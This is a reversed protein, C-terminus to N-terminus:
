KPNIVTIVRSGTAEDVVVQPRGPLNRNQITLTNGKPHPTRKRVNTAGDLVQDIDAPSMARRGRPPNVMRDAAHVFIDRGGPTKTTGLLQKTAFEGDFPVPLNDGGGSGGTKSGSVSSKVAGGLKKAIAGGPVVSTAVSEAIVGAVATAGGSKAAAAVDVATIAVDLAKLVLPALAFVFIEGNPDTYKYPNNAAYSYRNFTRPDDPNIAVPDVSMFRGITPDYYRQQMYVLGTSADDTHGTYGREAGILGCGIRSASDTNETKDGFPTYTEAWCREGSEDLAVIASGLADTQFFVVEDRLVDNAHSLSAFPLLCTLVTLLMALKGVAARSALLKTKEFLNMILDRCQSKTSKFQPLGANSATLSAGDRQILNSM